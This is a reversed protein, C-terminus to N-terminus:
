RKIDAITGDNKNLHYDKWHGGQTLFRIIVYPRGPLYGVVAGVVYQYDGNKVLHIVKNRDERTSYGKKAEIVILNRQNGSKREHAIIDPRINQGDSTKKEDEKYKNYEIDVCCGDLLNKGRLVEELYQALKHNICEEKPQNKILDGDCQVLRVIAQVVCREYENLHDGPLTEM